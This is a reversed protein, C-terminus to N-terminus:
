QFLSFAKTGIPLAPSGAQQAKERNPRTDHPYNKISGCTCEDGTPDRVDTKPPKDPGGLTNSANLPGGNNFCISAIDEALQEASSRTLPQLGTQERLADDEEKRTVRLTKKFYEDLFEEWSTATFRYKKYTDMFDGAPKAWPFFVSLGHSYQYTPGAFDTRVILKDDNGDKGPAMQDLLEQCATLVTDVQVSM